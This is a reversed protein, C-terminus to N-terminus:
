HKRVSFVNIVKFRNYVVYLSRIRSSYCFCKKFSRGTIHTHWWINRSIIRKLPSKAAFLVHRIPTNLVSISSFVIVPSPPVHFIYSVYQGKSFRSKHRSMRLTPPEPERIQWQQQKTISIHILLPERSSTTWASSFARHRMNATVDLINGCPIEM